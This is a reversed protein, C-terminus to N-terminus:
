GVPVAVDDRWVRRSSDAVLVVAKGLQAEAGPAVPLLSVRQPDLDDLHPSAPLAALRAASLALARTLRAAAASTGGLSRTSGSFTGSALVGPHARSEEALTAVTPGPVSWDAGAGSYRAASVRNETGDGVAAGVTFVQRGPATAMASHTGDRTIPGKPCLGTYAQRDADWAHAGDDDFYSQRAQAAYGRLGDDRQIQLVVDLPDGGDHRLTVTWAGSAAEPEGTKRGESPALALVLHAPSAVGNGFDRAPVHYIRAVAAGNRNLTRYQGPAPTEFGSKPGEPGEVEVSLGTLDTRPLRIEMYSPTQDSPQVRWVSRRQTDPTLNHRSVLKSQRNNGFSWVIRVPQGTVREWEAAERAIQYEVFRTGDKPGAVVGLSLNVIVPATRDVEAARRLVWRVAQVAYSEFRTGSTDEIAQPPLQVALIPWDRAADAGDPDAGAALDLIHTGHSTGFDTIQRAAGSFLEANLATYAGSEEAGLQATIEDRTLVKGLAVRDSGSRQELTQVWLAHFRSVQTGDALTKRFRANLFAIGDDIVAVIPAGPTDSPAAAPPQAPTPGSAALRVPMGRDLITFLTEHAKAATGAKVYLAYEDPLGDLPDSTGARATLEAFEHGDMSLSDDAGLAAILGARAGPGTLRVFIPTYLAGWDPDAPALAARRRELLGSWDLYADDFEADQAGTWAYVM